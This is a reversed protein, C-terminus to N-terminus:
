ELAERVMNLGNVGKPLVDLVYRNDPKDLMEFPGSFCMDGMIDFSLYDAWDTMNRPSGWGNGENSEPHPGSPSEGLHQTFKRINRLVIGEM